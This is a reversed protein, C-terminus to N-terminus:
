LIRKYKEIIKKGIDPKDSPHRVYFNHSFRPNQFRLLSTFDCYEIKPSTEFPFKKTPGQGLLRQHFYFGNAAKLVMDGRNFVITVDGSIAESLPVAWNLYDALPVCAENLVINDVFSIDTGSSRSALEEGLLMAFRNGLSHFMMSCHVGRSRVYESLENLFRNFLPMAAAISNETAEFSSVPGGQKIAAPWCFVLIDKDYMKSLLPERNMFKGVGDGYGHVLVLVDQWECLADLLEELSEAPTLAFSSSDASAYLYRLTTDSAPDYETREQALSTNYDYISVIGASNLPNEDDITGVTQVIRVPPRKVSRQAPLLTPLLFFLVFLVINRCSTM